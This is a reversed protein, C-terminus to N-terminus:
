RHSRKGAPHEYVLAKKRINIGVRSHKACDGSNDILVDVNSRTPKRQVLESAIIDKDTPSKGVFEDSANAETVM